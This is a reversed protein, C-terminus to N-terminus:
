KKSRLSEMSFISQEGAGCAPCKDYGNIYNSALWAAGCSKCRMRSDYNSTVDDTDIVTKGYNVLGFVADYSLIDTEYKM